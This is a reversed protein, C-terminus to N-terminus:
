SLLHHYLNETEKVLRAYSYNELASKKGNAALTARLQANAALEGLKEAFQVADQNCVMGSFGDRVVDKVGGVDTCIVATGSAQAEIISVPTGENVSTLAMIDAGANIVDIDKRWSTFIVDADYNVAEPKCVSFGAEQAKSVTADLLEGDGVIFVKFRLWPHQQRLLAISEIFLAHNKIATLRGTIVIAMEDDQIGYFQRFAARKSEQQETFRQLDFGLKIVHVKDAAAIKYKNVLDDKQKESIAVIADSISCLYREIGLFVKTKLPSFYGDFVNGHYTHIIAKPKISSRHAALRGLVGAKAAHTHVIDPKNDKISKYIYRYAKLDKVPDISRGMHPVYQFPVDLDKLLYDSNGEYPEKFGALVLTNFGPDIYRSLYAVNYTPGGINLRNLIRLIRPM